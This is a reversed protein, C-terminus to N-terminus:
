APTTGAVAAGMRRVAETLIEPTTAFNLRVHGDGGTGFDTGEVLAVGAHELFWAGPAEAVAPPLARCDLWALYTADPVRMRVRPLHEALLGVLLTRNDELDALAADLWARGERLAVTHALVGLHSPGHEVVWHLRDLDDAAAPGATLLAAKMGALHWAKSASAIAFADAAEPLSLYPTFTVGPRVLPAHVEDVVVRVGHRAALRAVERLEDATHVVGTPNQPSCLFYAAAGAFATDLAAPDLRGDADLPAERVSWGAAEVYGLFPPYVPPSIVVAAGPPAVLRLAEVAGTMVDAVVTTRAPRWGWRDDAFDAFAEAYPELLPYGTDGEEIARVLAARVPPAVRADMEAVWLPLVDPGHLQWKVSTRRRLDTLGLDRLPHM